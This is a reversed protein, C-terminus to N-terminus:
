EIRAVRQAGAQRDIRAAADLRDGAQDLALSRSRRPAIGIQRAPAFKTRSFGDFPMAFGNSQAGNSTTAVVAPAPPLLDGFRPCEPYQRRSKARRWRYM